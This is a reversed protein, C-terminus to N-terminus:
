ITLYIEYGKCIHSIYHMGSVLAQSKAMNKVLALGGADSKALGGVLNTAYNKLTEKSYKEPVQRILQLVAKDALAYGAVAGIPNIVVSKAGSKLITTCTDDTDCKKIKTMNYWDLLHVFNSPDQDMNHNGSKKHVNRM